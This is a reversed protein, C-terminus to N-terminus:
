DLSQLVGLRTEEITWGDCIADLAEYDARHAAIFRDFDEQARWRDITLYTSDTGRLLETGLYGAGKAFLQTWAGAAGYAREFEAQMEPRVTYCWVIAIM